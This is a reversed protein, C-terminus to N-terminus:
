LIAYCASPQLGERLLAPADTKAESPESRALATDALAIKQPLSSIQGGAGEGNSPVTVLLGLRNGSAGRCM